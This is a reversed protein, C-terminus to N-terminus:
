IQIIAAGVDYTATGTLTTFVTIATSAKARITIVTNAFFGVTFYSNISFTQVVSNEDTFTVALTLNGGSTATVACYASIQFTRTSSPSYTAISALATNQALLNVESVIPLAGLYSALDAITVKYDSPIGGVIKTIIFFTDTDTTSTSLGSLTAM